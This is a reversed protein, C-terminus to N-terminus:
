RVAESNRAQKRHRELCAGCIREDGYDHMEDEGKPEKCFICDGFYGGPLQEGVIGRAEKLAHMAPVAQYYPLASLAAEVIACQEMFAKIDHRTM